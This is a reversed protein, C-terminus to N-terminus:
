RRPSEHMTLAAGATCHAVYSRPQPSLRPRVASCTPVPEPQAVLQRAEDFRTSITKGRAAPAATLRSAAYGFALVAMCVWLATM